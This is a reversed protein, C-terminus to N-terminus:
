IIEASSLIAEFSDENMAEFWTRVTLFVKRIYSM